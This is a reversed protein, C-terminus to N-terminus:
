PDRQQRCHLETQHDNRRRRLEGVGVDGFAQRAAAHAEDNGFRDIFEFGADLLRQKLATMGVVSKLNVKAKVAAATGTVANQFLWFHRYGPGFLIDPGIWLAFVAAGLLASLLPRTPPTSLPARSFAALVVATALVRLSYMWVTPLGTAKEVSMVVIFALFPGIYTLTPNRSTL